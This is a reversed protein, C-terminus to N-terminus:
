GVLAKVKDQIAPEADSMERALNLQQATRAVDLLAPDIPNGRSQAWALVKALRWIAPNGDHVPAPFAPGHRLMLKRLNQRSCGLIRAVDTLGVFDPSAEVLAAEPIARKVDRLAGLIAQSASRAERSFQLAIRGAVGIGVAADDCGAAVLDDIFRGPDGDPDGLAFKLTFEYTNM